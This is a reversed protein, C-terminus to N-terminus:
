KFFTVELTNVIENSKAQHGQKQGLIVWNRVQGLFLLVFMKLM